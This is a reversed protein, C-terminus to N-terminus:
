SYDSFGHLIVDYVKKKIYVHSKLVGERKFGYKELFLIEKKRSSYTETHIKKIGINKFSIKKILDLFLKFYFFKSKKNKEIKTKFLLSVEARLNLWSIHVLGGYGILESNKKISFILNKPKKENYEKFIYNKFYKKQEEKTIKKNQRLNIIQQNRWIRIKEIDTKSIPCLEFNNNKFVKNKLIKYNKLPKM